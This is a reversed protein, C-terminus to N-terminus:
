ITISALELKLNSVREELAKKLCVLLAEQVPKFHEGHLTVPGLVCLNGLDAITITLGSGFYKDQLERSQLSNYAQM